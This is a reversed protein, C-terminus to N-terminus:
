KFVYYLTVLRMKDYLKGLLSQVPFVFLFILLGSLISVDITKVMIFVIVVVEIPGVILYALFGLEFRTVDNSILNLLQGSSNNNM